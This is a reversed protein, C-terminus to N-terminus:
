SADESDGVPTLARVWAASFDRLATVAKAYATERRNAMHDVRPSAKRTTDRLQEMEELLICPDAGRCFRLHLDVLTRVWPDSTDPFVTPGGPTPTYVKRIASAVDARHNTLTDEVQALTWKVLDCIGKDAEALHLPGPQVPDAAFLCLVTARAGLLDTGEVPIKRALERAEASYQSASWCGNAKPGPPAKSARSLAAAICLRHSLLDNWPATPPCHDGQCWGLPLLPSPRRFSTLFEPMPVRDEWCGYAHASDAWVFVRRRQELTWAEAVEIPVDVREVVCACMALLEAAAPPDEEPAPPAPPAVVPDWWPLRPNKPAREMDTEFPVTCVMAAIRREETSDFVGRQFPFLLSGARYTRMKGDVISGREQEPLLSDVEYRRAMEETDFIAIPLAASSPVWDGVPRARLMFCPTAAYARVAERLRLYQDVNGM